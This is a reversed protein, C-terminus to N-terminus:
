REVAGPAVGARWAPLARLQITSPPLMLLGGDAFARKGKGDPRHELLASVVRIRQEETWRPM